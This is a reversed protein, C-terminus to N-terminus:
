FGLWPIQFQPKSSFSVNCIRDYFGTATLWGLELNCGCIKGPVCLVGYSGRMKVEAWVASIFTEAFISHVKRGLSEFSVINRDARVFEVVRNVGRDGGHRPKICTLPRPVEVSGGRFCVHVFRHDQISVLKFLSSGNGPRLNYKSM